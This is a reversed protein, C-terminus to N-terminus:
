LTGIIRGERLLIIAKIATECGGHPKTDCDHLNQYFVSKVVIYFIINIVLSLSVM